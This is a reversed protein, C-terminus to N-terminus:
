PLPVLTTLNGFIEHSIQKIVQYELEIAKAGCVHTWKIVAHRCTEQVTKNLSTLLPRDHLIVISKALFAVLVCGAYGFLLTRDVKLKEAEWTM